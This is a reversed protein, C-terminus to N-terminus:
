MATYGICDNDMPSGGFPCSVKTTILDSIARWVNSHFIIETFVESTDSYATGYLNIPSWRVHLFRQQWLLSTMTSILDTDQQKLIWCYISWRKKRINVTFPEQRIVASNGTPSFYWLSPVSKQGGSLEGIQRDRFESMQVRELSERVVQKDKLRPIRHCEYGYRGMM